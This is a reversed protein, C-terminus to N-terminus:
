WRDSRFPAAPLGSGNFLNAVPANSWAYRVAVPEKVDPASVLLTDRIIKATAPRFVRDAGAIELSQVPQAHAVLGDSAHTFKVRLASGERTIGVYTTGTAGGTIGYVRNRALLALRRGVEQKNTPH